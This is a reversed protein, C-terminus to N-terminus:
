LSKLWKEFEKKCRNRTERASEALNKDKLREYAKKAYEMDLYRPMNEALKQNKKARRMLAVVVEDGDYNEFCSDFNRTKTRRNAIVQAAFNVRYQFNEPDNVRPM